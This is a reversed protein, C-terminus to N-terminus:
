RQDQQHTSGPISISLLHIDAPHSVQSLGSRSSAKHTAGGPSIQVVEHYFTQTKSTAEPIPPFHTLCHRRPFSSLPLTAPTSPLDRDWGLSSGSVPGADPFSLTQTSCPVPSGSCFTVARSQFNCFLMWWPTRTKKGAPAQLQSGTSVPGPTQPAPSAM